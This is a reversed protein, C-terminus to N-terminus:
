FWWSEDKYNAEVDDWTIVKENGLIKREDDCISEHLMLRDIVNQGKSFASPMVENSNLVCNPIIRMRQFGEAVLESCFITELNEDTKDKIVSLDPPHTIILSLLESLVNKEYPRGQIERVYSELMDRQNDNLRSRENNYKNAKAIMVDEDKIGVNQIGHEDKLLVHDNVGQLRRLLLLQHKRKFLRLFQGLPYTYCGIQNAEFLQLQGDHFPEWEFGEPAWPPLPAIPMSQPREGRQVVIMSIHDWWTNDVLQTGIGVITPTHRLLIDGSDVHHELFHTPKVHEICKYKKKIHATSGNNKGVFKAALKGIAPYKLKLIRIFNGMLIKGFGVKLQILLGNSTM